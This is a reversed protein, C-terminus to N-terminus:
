RGFNDSMIILDLINVIGDGNLDAAPNYDTQGISKGFSNSLLIVDQINTVNDRNVDGPVYVRVVGQLTMNNDSLHTEFPLPGAKATINYVGKPLVWTDNWIGCYFTVNMSSNPALNSVTESELWFDDFYVAVNFTENTNGENKVTVNMPLYGATEYLGSGTTNLQLNNLEIGTVAVDPGSVLVTYNISWMLNRYDTVTLNVNYYGPDLYLHSTTRDISPTSNKPDAFDWHYSAIGSNSGTMNDPDYSASADFIVDTASAVPIPPKYTFNAVPKDTYFIGNMLTPAITGGTSNKLLSYSILLTCNGTMTDNVHFTITALTGSGNVGNSSGVRTSNLHVYGDVIFPGNSQFNESANQALFGGSSVSGNIFIPYSNLGPWTLNVDYSYIETANTVTLNVNFTDGPDHIITTNGTTADVVELFTEQTVAVTKVTPNSLGTQDTVTLNVNYNGANQYIHSISNTVTSNTSSDGFDWTYNAIGHNPATWNKPDYSAAANFTLNYGVFCPQAPPAFDAVPQSPSVTVTLPTTWNALGEIDTINLLVNNISENTYTHSTIPGPLSTVNGDGFNWTFNMIGHNSANKNDLDYSGTANFILPENVYFHGPKWPTPYDITFKVLPPAYVWISQSNTNQLGEIDRVQLTVTLPGQSSTYTYTVMPGLRQPGEGLLWGYTLTAPGGQNPDSSNSADFTVTSINQVPGPAPTPPSWTINFSAIPPQLPCVRVWNTVNNNATNTEGALPPAYVTLNYDGNAPTWFYTSWFTQNVDLTPTLAYLSLSGNILLELAVNSESVNGVNRVTANFFTSSGNSMHNYIDTIAPSGLGAKLDHIDTQAKVLSIALFLMSGILLTLVILSATEKKLKGKEKRL